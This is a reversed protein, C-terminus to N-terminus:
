TVVPLVYFTIIIVVNSYLCILGDYYIAYLIRGPGTRLEGPGLVIFIVKMSCRMHACSQLCIFIIKMFAAAFSAYVMGTATLSHKVNVM